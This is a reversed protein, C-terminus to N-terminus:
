SWFFPLWQPHHAHVISCFVIFDFLLHVTITYPLSRSKTFVIAQVLAFPITLLPGWSRYGLEWLFSVFIISTLVNATWFPFHRRLLTFIMCIFFLEDWIGVANVGIFLRGIESPSEVAPWNLYAGSHIFYRPLILWAALLVFVLWGWELGSWPEGRRRPYRIADDRLVTRHLVYPVVVAASLVAGMLFFHPWSIDAAVSITNVIALGLAILGLDRGLPRSALLGLAVGTLLPAYGWPTLLGFLLVAGAAVLAAALGGTSVTPLPVPPGLVPSTTNERSAAADM